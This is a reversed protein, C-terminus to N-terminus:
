QASQWIDAAWESLDLPTFVINREPSDENKDDDQVQFPDHDFVQAFSLSLSRQVEVPQPITIAYMLSPAMETPLPHQQTSKLNELGDMAWKEILITHDVETISFLLVIKVAGLSNTLWWHADVRLRDLTEPVGTEIVLTPWDTGRPRSSKPKFASHAEKSFGALGDYRTGRMDVLERRLSIPTIKEWLLSAFVSSALEHKPDPMIKVVLTQQHAHYLFRLSKYKADRIQDIKTLEDKSVRSFVMYKGGNGAKVLNIQSEVAEAFSHNDIYERQAAEQLGETLYYHM